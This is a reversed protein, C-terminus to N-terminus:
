PFQSYAKHPLARFHGTQAVTGPLFPSADSRPNNFMVQPLGARFNPGTMRHKKRSASLITQPELKVLTWFTITANICTTCRRTRSLYPAYRSSYYSQLFGYRKLSCLSLLTRTSVGCHQTLRAVESSTADELM